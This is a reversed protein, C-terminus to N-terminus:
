CLILIFFSIMFLHDVSKNILIGHPVSYFLHFHFLTFIFMVVIQKGKKKVLNQTIKLNSFSLRLWKLFM